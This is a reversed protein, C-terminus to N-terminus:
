KKDPDASNLIQLILEPTEDILQTAGEFLHKAAHLLGPFEERKPHTVLAVLEATNYGQVHEHWRTTLLFPTVQRANIDRQQDQKDAEKVAKWLREAELDDPNPPAAQRPIVQFFSSKSGRHIQQV